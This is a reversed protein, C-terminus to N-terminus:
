GIARSAEPAADRGAEAHVEATGPRVQVRYHGKRHQWVPASGANKREARRSVSAGQCASFVNRREGCAAPIARRELSGPARIVRGYELLRGSAAALQKGALGHEWCSKFFRRCEAALIRRDVLQAGKANRTRPASRLTASDISCRRYDGEQVHFWRLVPIQFKHLGSEVGYDGGSGDAPGGARFRM